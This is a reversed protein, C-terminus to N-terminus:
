FIEENGVRKLSVVMDDVIGVLKVVVDDVEVNVGIVDVMACVVEVIVGIVDVVVGDVVDAACGLGLDLGVLGLNMRIKALSKGTVGVDSGISVHNCFVLILMTCTSM